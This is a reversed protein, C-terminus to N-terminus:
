QSLIAGFARTFVYVRNRSFPHEYREANNGFDARLTKISQRVTKCSTCHKVVLLPHTPKKPFKATHSVVVSIQYM